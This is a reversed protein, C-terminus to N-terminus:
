DPAGSRMPARPPSHDARDPVDLAHMRRYLTTRSIGLQEAARRKNGGASRLARIIAAREARERGGLCRTRDSGRYREPLDGIDIRGAPSIASALEDILGALEVLNGTWPQAGLAEIARPTFSWERDPRVTAGMTTLLAPLEHLRERLPAPEIRRDCRGVLRAVHDPLEEIPCSTLVFRARASAMVRRLVTCLREPLVHVEDIVVVGTHRAALGVLRAAWAREPGTVAAAADMTVIPANGAAQCAARTRGTGPEGAVLVSRGTLADVSVGPTSACSPPLPDGLHFLAGDPTGDIREATVPIRGVPGLDLERVASGRKAVEPLLTRLVAPDVTGLLDLCGRNALVIDGGLVAAPVCRHRTAHQFALFLRRDVERSGEVLRAEIDRAARSLLPGFLPNATAGLGTLDLVGEIRHTLPHRVPHGYCSFCKLGHLFHEPGNVWASRGTEMATGLGNTGAATEELGAGITIGCASMIRRIERDGIWEYVIRCERDALYFCLGTGELQAALDRLVPGAAVMLRSTTHVDTHTLLGGSEPDLGSVESRRWSVAIEPRLGVGLHPGGTSGTM